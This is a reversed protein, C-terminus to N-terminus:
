PQSEPSGGLVDGISNILRATLAKAERDVYSSTSSAFAPPNLAAVTGLVSVCVYALQRGIHLHATHEDVFRRTAWAVTVLTIILTTWMVASDRLANCPARSVALM